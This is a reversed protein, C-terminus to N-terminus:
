SPSMAPSLRTSYGPLMTASPCATFTPRHSSIHRDANASEVAEAILPAAERLGDLSVMGQGCTIYRTDQGAFLQMFLFRHIRAWPLACVEAITQAVGPLRRPLLFMPQLGRSVPRARYQRRRGPAQGPNRPMVARGETKAPKAEIGEAACGGLIHLAAMPHLRPKVPLNNARCSVLCAGGSSGHTRSRPPSKYLQSLPECIGNPDPLAAYGCRDGHAESLPATCPEWTAHPHKANPDVKPWIDGPAKM